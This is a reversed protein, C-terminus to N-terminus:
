QLFSDMHLLLTINRSTGSICHVPLPGSYSSNHFNNHATKVGPSFLAQQTM